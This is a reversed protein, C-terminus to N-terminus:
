IFDNGTGYLKDESTNQHLTFYAASLLSKCSKLISFNNISPTLRDPCGTIKRIRLKEIQANNMRLLTTLGKRM